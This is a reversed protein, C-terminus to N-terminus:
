DLEIQPRHRRCCRSAGRFDLTRQRLCRRSAGACLSSICIESGGHDLWPSSHLSMQARRTSESSPLCPGRLATHYLVLSCSYRRRYRESDKWSIRASIPMHQHWVISLNQRHLLRDQIPCHLKCLTCVQFTFVKSIDIHWPISSRIHSAFRLMARSIHLYSVM